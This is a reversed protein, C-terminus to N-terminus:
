VLLLLLTWVEFQDVCAHYYLAVLSPLMGSYIIRPAIMGMWSVVCLGYFPSAVIPLFFQNLLWSTGPIDLGGLQLLPRLM